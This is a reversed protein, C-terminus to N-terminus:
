ISIRRRAFFGLAGLAGLVMPFAAPLPIPAPPIVSMSDIVVGNYCLGEFSCGEEFDGQFRPNLLVMELMDINSFISGFAFSAGPYTPLELALSAVLSGERYGNIGFNLGSFLETFGQEYYHAGEISLVSFTGCTEHVLGSFIEGGDPSIELDDRAYNNNSYHFGSEAYLLSGGLAYTNCSPAAADQGSFSLTSAPAQTAVLLAFCGVLFRM